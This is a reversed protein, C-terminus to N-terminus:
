VRRGIRCGRRLPRPENATRQALRVRSNRRRLGLGARGLGFLALTTPEPAGASPESYLFDDMAVLDIGAAPNDNTSGGLAANGTTIRVRSIREGADFVVGLSSLSQDGVSGAPVYRQYLLNDLMDFGAPNLFDACLPCTM